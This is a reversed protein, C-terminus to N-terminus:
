KFELFKTLDFKKSLALSVFPPSNQITLGRVEGTFSIGYKEENLRFQIVYFWNWVRDTPATFGVTPDSKPQNTHGLVVNVFLNTDGQRVMIPLGFGFYHSRLDVSSTRSVTQQDAPKNAYKYLDAKPISITDLRSFSSYQTTVDVRQWLLEMWLSSFVHFGDRNASGNTLRVMPSLFLGLNKVVQSKQVAAADNFGGIEGANVKPTVANTVALSQTNYYSFESSSGDLTSTLTKSEYVGAFIGLNKPERGAAITDKKKISKLVPRIDLMRLFVGSFLNNAQVGDVLDFNAGIEVWFPKRPEYMGKETLRIYAPYERSSDASLYLVGLEDGTLQKKSRQIRIVVPAEFLSDTASVKPIAIRPQVISPSCSLNMPKLIFELHHRATDQPASQFLKVQVRVTVVTDKATYIPHINHTQSPLEQSFACLSTVGILIIALIEKRMRNLTARHQECFKDTANEKDDERVSEKGGDDKIIERNTIFFNM